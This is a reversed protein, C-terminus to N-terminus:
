RLGRLQIDKYNLERIASTYSEVLGELAPLPNKDNRLAKLLDGFGTVIDEFFKQRIGQLIGDADDPIDGLLDMFISDVYSNLFFAIFRTRLDVEALMLSTLSLQLDRLSSTIRPPSNAESRVGRMKELSKEIWDLLVEM